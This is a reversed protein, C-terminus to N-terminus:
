LKREKEKKECEASKRKGHKKGRRKEMNIEGEKDREKRKMLTDVRRENNIQRGKEIRRVQGKIGWGKKREYGERDRERESSEYSERETQMEVGIEKM